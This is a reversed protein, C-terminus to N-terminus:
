PTPLTPKESAREKTTSPTKEKDDHLRGETHIQTRTEEKM